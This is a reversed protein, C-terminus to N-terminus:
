HEVNSVHGTTLLTLLLGITFDTAMLRVSQALLDDHLWTQRGYMHVGTDIGFAFACADRSSEAHFDILTPTKPCAIDYFDVCYPHELNEKGTSVGHRVRCYQAHDGM